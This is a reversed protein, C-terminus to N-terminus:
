PTAGLKEREERYFEVAAAPGTAKALDDSLKVVPEGDIEVIKWVINPAPQVLDNVLDTGIGFRVPLRGAFHHAIEIMRPVTLGDSCLMFHETPDIGHEVYWDLLEEGYAIPDGSDQRMGAWRRAMAPPLYDLALPTSYTDTLFILLEGNRYDGYMAEWQELVRQQSRGIAEPEDDRVWLAAVGMFLQHAMTGIMPLGYKWALLMNSTGALQQPIRDKLRGVVLDQWSLDFRRRAGFEAFRIEPHKQLLEIKADLKALGYRYAEELSIGSRRLRQHQYGATIAALAPTEWWIAQWWPGQVWATWGDDTPIVQAPPLTMSVLQELFLPDFLQPSALFDLADPSIKTAQIPQLLDVTEDATLYDALQISGRNILEFTAIQDPYHKWILQAMTLTYFDNDLLRHGFTTM